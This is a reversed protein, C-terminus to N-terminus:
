VTARMLAAGLGRGRHDPAVAVRGVLGIGHYPQADLLVHGVMEASEDVGALLAVSDARAALDRLLQERDLPWTFSRAGSWQWLADASDVWTLLRDCDAPQLPRLELAPRDSTETVRDVIAASRRDRPRLFSPPTLGVPSDPTRPSRNAEAGWRCRLRGDA